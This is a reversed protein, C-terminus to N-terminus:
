AEARERESRGALIGVNTVVFPVVFNLGVKLWTIGPTDPGVIVDAQNILTLVLGVIAATTVSRRLHRRRLCFSVVPRIGGWRPGQPRARTLRASSSRDVPGAVLTHSGLPRGLVEQVDRACTLLAPLDVGTRVGMEHLM